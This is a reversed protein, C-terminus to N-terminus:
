YGRASCKISVSSYGRQVVKFTVDARLNKFRARVGFPRKLMKKIEGGEAEIKEAFLVSYDEIDEYESEDLWREYGYLLKDQLTINLNNMVERIKDADWKATVTTM